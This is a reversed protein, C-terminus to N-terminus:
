FKYNLDLQLRKYERDRTATGVASAPASNNLENIFYTTNFVFNKAFAYGLKVVVGKTDTNGDGFDSDYFQGFLADKEAEQYFAGIEWTRANAAKGYFVGGAWATDLVADDNQAYDAFFLLPRGAVSALAYEASLGMINYDFQLCSTVGAQCGVATTTNGFSSNSVSAFPNLGKVGGFDQYSAALMYKGPGADGRIGIQAQTLTSDTNPATGPGSFREFLDIYAVDAFFMGNTYNIAGGEPNIDGDFFLSQGPRVWPYKMKGLTVKWQANPAWEAYALSLDFAKRSNADTLTQNSSRPDPTGTSLELEAKITDNVKAVFGARARIRDRNRDNPFFEQDFSENRFRLDGKWTFRGVWEGVGAKTQAMADTTRDQADQQSKQQKELEEVKTQLAELQAKLSALDDSQAHTQPAAALALVGAVALSVM